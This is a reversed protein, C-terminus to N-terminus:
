SILKNVESNIKSIFYEENTSNNIRVESRFGWRTFLNERFANVEKRTNDIESTKIEADFFNERIIGQLNFPLLENKFVIKYLKEEKENITKKINYLILILESDRKAIAFDPYYDYDKLVSKQLIYKSGFHTFNDIENEIYNKNVNLNENFSKILQYIQESKNLLTQPNKNKEEYILSDAIEQILYQPLGSFLLGNISQYLQECVYEFSEDFLRDYLDKIM